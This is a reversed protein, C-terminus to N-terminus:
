VNQREALFKKKDLWQYSNRLKLKSYAASAVLNYNTKFFSPNQNGGMSIAYYQKAIQHPMLYVSKTNHWLVPHFNDAHPYLKLLMCAICFPLEDPVAGAFVTAPVKLKDYVKQAVKFFKNVQMSKRFYVFESHLNYFRESEVNYAKKVKSVDAWISTKNESGHNSFTLDIDQLQNFLESVPRSLWVMDVDLFITSKFPSLQYMFMKCRIYKTQGNFIYYEPPIISMSDFLTKEDETLYKIANDTYALHVPINKDTAKLTAALTAAMKGYNYHGAAILLIGKDMLNEKKTFSISIKIM